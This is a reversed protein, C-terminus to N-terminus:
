QAGQGDHYAALMGRAAAPLSEFEAQQVDMEFEREVPTVETVTRNREVEALVRQERMARAQEERVIMRAVGLAFGELNAVPRGELLARALRDLTQDALDEPLGARQRMFFYILREQLRTYRELPHAGGRGLAELLCALTEETLQWRDKSNIREM